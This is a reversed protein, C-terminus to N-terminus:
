EREWGKAVDLLMMAFREVGFGLCREDVDFNPTHLANVIGERENRIGLFFYCGPIRRSFAAFDEAGLQPEHPVIEDTGFREELARVARAELRSDNIVPRAGATFKVECSAGFGECINRALRGIEEKAQASVETSLSRLIGTLKADEALINYSNGAEIKGITVVCAQRADVRRSVVSQLATVLHSAVLVADVGEHPYAGHAKKGRVEIEVLDSGAWVGGGTYGIKGVELTPMCHAAFVADVKPAELVGAQAMKEAGVPEDVPSAEEAPQFIFKVRGHLEDRRAHMQEALGLTVTTHVDHGCAHMVGDNQSRYSVENIEQIPLADIDGRWGLTPGDHAGEVVAVVGTDAIRKVDTIGIKALQEEIYRATQEEENSLEPHAHLHRRREILQGLTKDDLTTEPFESSIGTM